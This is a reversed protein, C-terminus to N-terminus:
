RLLVIYVSPTQFCPASSTIQFQSALLLLLNPFVAYHPAEYIARRVVNYPPLDLLFPYTNCTVCASYLLFVFPSLKSSRAM